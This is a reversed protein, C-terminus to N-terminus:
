LTPPYRYKKSKGGSCEDTAKVKAYYKGDSLNDNSTKIIFASTDGKGEFTKAAGIKKDKGQRAFYLTVKRKDLCSEKGEVHGVFQDESGSDIFVKFSSGMAAPVAVATLLAVSAIMLTIRKMRALRDRIM